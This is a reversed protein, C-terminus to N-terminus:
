TGLYKERRERLMRDANSPDPDNLRLQVLEEAWALIANHLSEDKGGENIADVCRKRLESVVAGWAEHETRQIARFAEADHEIPTIKAPKRDDSM